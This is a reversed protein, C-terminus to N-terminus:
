TNRILFRKRDQTHKKLQSMNPNLQSHNQPNLQLDFLSIMRILFSVYQIATVTTISYNITSNTSSHLVAFQLKYDEIMYM